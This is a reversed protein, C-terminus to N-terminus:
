DADVADPLAERSLLNQVTEVVSEHRVTRVDFRFLGFVVQIAPGIGFMGIVTGVGVPGGLFFGIVLVVTEISGRILGVPIRTFRKSLATMMSDRPGCGLGSGIYLFSGAALVFLSALVMAGGMWVGSAAPILDLHRLFDVMYGVSLTNCITGAGIKEGLLFSIGLICLGVLINITGYSIGTLNQLGIHFVDWPTVGVSGQIALLISVACLLLGAYLRLFRKLYSVVM